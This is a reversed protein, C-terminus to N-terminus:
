DPAYLGAKAEEGTLAFVQVPMTRGRVNHAGLDEFSFAEGVLRRTEGSVIIRHGLRESLGMIRSATNVVDGVTAYEARNPSGVNGAVVDGSHLGFKADPPPDGKARLEDKWQLLEREMDLAIRCASAAHAPDDAPAGCIVMIEDGVFQKLTGHHRFIVKEMRTFYENLMAIVQEPESRESLETFGNLDCFLITVKRRLGGL